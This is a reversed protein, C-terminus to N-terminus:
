FNFTPIVMNQQSYPKLNDFSFSSAVTGSLEPMNMDPIERAGQNLVLVADSCADVIDDHYGDNKDGNFSELEVFMEELWNDEVFQVHGAEALAAFPKFRILKSKNVKVLKCYIGAEALKVKVVNAYAIGAQGPDVPLVVVTGEPDTLATELILKEVEYPRDRLSALDEVTYMGQKDKSMLVGRTWDPNPNATSPKTASLDWARVRKIVSLPPTDIVNCFDRKFYGAEEERCFWSGELFIKRKIPPLALLNYYYDPNNKMLPINETVHARISRFSRPVGKGHISEAEALTEYWIFKGDQVIFFREVNSREAIHIGEDDLYYEKIMDAIPHGYMPNTAWFMQPRYKVNANRLRGM